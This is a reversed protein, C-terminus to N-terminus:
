HGCLQGPERGALGQHVDDAGALGPRPSLRGAPNGADAVPGASASAGHAACVPRYHALDASWAKGTHSDRQEYPDLGDYSWDTAPEGCLVCPTIKTAGVPLGDGPTRRVRIWIMIALVVVHIVTVLVVILTLNSNV